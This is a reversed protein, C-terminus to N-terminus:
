KRWMGLLVYHASVAKATGVIFKECKRSFLASACSRLMGDGRPEVFKRRLIAWAKYLRLLGILDLFGGMAMGWQLRGIARSPRIYAKAVFSIVPLAVAPRRLPWVGGRPWSLSIM